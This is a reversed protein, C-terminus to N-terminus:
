DDKGDWPTAAYLKAELEAVQTELQKIRRAQAELADAAEGKNVNHCARLRAILDETM